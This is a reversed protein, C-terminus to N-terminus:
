SMLDMLTYIGYPKNVLFKASLFIENAIYVPKNRM